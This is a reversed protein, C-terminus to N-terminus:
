YFRQLTDLADNLLDRLVLVKNRLEEGISNESLAPSKEGDRPEKQAHLQFAKKRIGHACDTCQGLFERIEDVDTSGLKEVTGTM